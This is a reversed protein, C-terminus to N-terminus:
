SGMSFFSDHSYVLRQCLAQLEWVICVLLGFDLVAGLGMVAPMRGIM